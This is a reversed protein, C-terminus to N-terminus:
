KKTTRILWFATLIFMNDDDGSEGINIQYRKLGLIEGQAENLYFASRDQRGFKM